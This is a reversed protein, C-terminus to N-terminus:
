AKRRKRWLLGVLGVVALVAAVAALRTIIFGASFHDGCGGLPNYQPCGFWIVIFLVWLPVSDM